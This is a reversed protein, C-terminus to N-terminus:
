YHMENVAAQHHDQQTSRHEPGHHDADHPAELGALGAVVHGGPVVGTAQPADQREAPEDRVPRERCVVRRVGEGGCERDPGDDQQEDRHTDPDVRHALGGGRHLLVSRAFCLAQASM